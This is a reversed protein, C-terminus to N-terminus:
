VQGNYFDKNICRLFSWGCSLPIFGMDMLELKRSIIPPGKLIRMRVNYPHVRMLACNGSPVADLVKRSCTAVTTFLTHTHFSLIKFYYMLFTWHLEQCKILINLVIYTFIFM